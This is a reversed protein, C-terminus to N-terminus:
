GDASREVSVEIQYKQELHKAFDILLERMFDSTYILVLHNGIKQAKFDGALFM